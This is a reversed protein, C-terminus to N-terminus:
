KRLVGLGNDCVRKEATRRNVLGRNVRGGAKNFWTLAKCGGPYDKANFRKAATSRCYTPAGYNYAGSVAAFRPGQRRVETAPDNSLALGPTCVMVEVAHATLARELMVTCQAETFTQGLKLPKGDEGRTLGDCATKVGVIDLYVRLYQKGRIHRMAVTGSADRSVEVKRGSEYEPTTELLADAVNVGVIAALGVLSAAIAGTANAARQNVPKNM